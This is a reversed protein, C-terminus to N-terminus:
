IYKWKVKTDVAMGDKVRINVINVASFKCNVDNSM